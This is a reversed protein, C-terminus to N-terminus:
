PPLNTNSIAPFFSYQMNSNTLRLKTKPQRLSRGRMTYILPMENGSVNDACAAILLPKVDSSLHHQYLAFSGYVAAAIICSVALLLLLRRKM